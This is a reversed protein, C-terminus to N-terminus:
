RYLGTGTLANASKGSTTFSALSNVAFILQGVLRHGMSFLNWVCDANRRGSIGAGRGHRIASRRLQRHRVKM